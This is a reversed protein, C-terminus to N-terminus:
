GLSFLHSLYLPNLVHPYLFPPRTQKQSSLQQVLHDLPAQAHSMPVLICHPLPFYYLHSMFLSLRIYHTLAFGVPHDLFKTHPQKWISGRSATTRSTHPACAEICCFDVMYQLSRPRPHNLSSSYPVTTHSVNPQILLQYINRSIYHPPIRHIQPEPAPRVRCATCHRRGPIFLSM